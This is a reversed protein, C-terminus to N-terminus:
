QIIQIYGSKGQNAPKDSGTTNINFKISSSAAAAEEAALKAAAAQAEKAAAAAAAKEAEAAPDVTPTEVKQYQLEKHEEQEKQLRKNQEGYDAKNTESKIDRVVKTQPENPDEKKDSKLASHLFGYLMLVILIFLLAIMGKRSGLSKKETFDNHQEQNRQDENM